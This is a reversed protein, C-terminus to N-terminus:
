GAEVEPRDLLVVRTPGRPLPLPLERLREVRAFRAVFLARPALEAFRTGDDASHCPIVVSPRLLATLEAAGDAGLTFHGGVPVVLVDPALALLADLLAGAPREGLDGCFALRTGATEICLVQVLGGRLRGGHEDHAATVGRVSLVADHHPVGVIRASPVADFAAHDDHLHTAVALDFRDPLPPLAVRGGFGGARYPDVVLERGDPLELAFCAHGLFRLSATV